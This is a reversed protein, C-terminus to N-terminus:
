VFVKKTKIKDKEVAGIAAIGDKNYFLIVFQGDNFQSNKLFQGHKVKDLQEENLELKPLPLIDFPNILCASSFNNKLEDLKHSSNIQFSGAQTRILKTLYAGAGLKQGLDYAISRIYTGKSCKVLIEAAQSTEDFTQLAIKEIFVKRPQIEVSQGKRAYDYLKKGNVKIASYIPPLQEIEGEFDKLAAIIENRTIKKDSTSTIQGECDYTDTTKGFQVTAIYEKDDALFEILRTAKGVCVPLVGEAFPDLTGTHGVQRQSTIKRVCAVVDHSTMGAPKYINLFGFYNNKNGKALVM